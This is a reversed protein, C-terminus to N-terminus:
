PLISVAACPQKYYMNWICIGYNENAAHAILGNGIYLAVHNINAGDNSYFVLDGPRVQSLDIRTGCYSQAASSHPLGYGYQAYLALVYGSCDAGGTLSTGGWVYPNGIFQQAYAVLANRVESTTTAAPAQTQQQTAQTAAQTQQAATQAQTQQAAPQQAAAQTQQSAAAAQSSAAVSSEYAQQASEYEAQLREKEAKIAAEEELSVAKKFEVSLEVCDKYVYGYTEDDVSIGVWDDFEEAVMYKSGQSVMQLIKIDDGLDPGQRVKLNEPIVTAYVVGVEKAIAEADAGTVFFESKIFGEVSGSQIEYWTGNEGDVTDVITAACNNYIKGVIEGNTSAETRVNVYGDETDVRAIAVNAYPSTEEEAATEAESEQAATSEEATTDAETQASVNKKDEQESAVRKLIDAIDSDPTLSSAYYNNLAVSMGAIARETSMGTDADAPFAFIGAGLVLGLAGAAFRAMGKRM